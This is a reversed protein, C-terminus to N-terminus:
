TWLRSYHKTFVELGKQVKTQQTATYNSDGESVIKFAAIMQNLTREWSRKTFGGPIGAEAEKFAKLRPYIFKAITIDLNWLESDDFGRTKIQNRFKSRRKDKLPLTHLYGLYTPHPLKTNSRSKSAM